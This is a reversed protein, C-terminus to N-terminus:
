TKGKPITLDLRIDYAGDTGLSVGRSVVQTFFESDKQYYAIVDNLSAQSRSSVQISVVTDSAFMVATVTAGPINLSYIRQLAERAIGRKDLFDTILQLRSKLYVQRANADTLGQLKSSSTAISKEIGSLRTSLFLNWISVAVTVVVIVTLTVVSYRLLVQEQLYDKESLVKRNKLLNIKMASM